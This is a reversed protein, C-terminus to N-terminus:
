FNDWRLSLQLAHSNYQFLSINERNFTARWEMVVSYHPRFRWSAATRLTATNQRRRTEILGPSYLTQSRWNQWNLGGELAVQSTAEGYWQVGGFWGNRDGGPRSDTSDDHLRTLTVQTLSRKGRYGFIGGLEAMTGDYAPRTPYEVRSLNGSFAFDTNKPMTWPPSARLQLQQQRQYLTRDLTVYGVAATGRLQWAGPKWTREVAALASATDQSSITDHWRSYAQFIASVGTSGLPRVNSVALQSFNDGKPLFTPDLEYETLFGGSGLTFRPDSAGQNVNDDRGRTAAMLWAGGKRVVKKGCGTARYRAITEIIGDPLAFRQQLSSFLREAEASHGLECQTIALDLWAGAHRPEAVVVRQLLAAAEEVRGDALARLAARYVDEEDNGQALPATAAFPADQTEQAACQYTSCSFILTSVMLLRKM